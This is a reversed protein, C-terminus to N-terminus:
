TQWPHSTYGGFVKNSRMVVLTPGTGDCDEHFQRARFTSAQHILTLKFRARAQGLGERLLGVDGDGKLLRSNRPVVSELYSLFIRRVIHPHRKVLKERSSRSASWLLDFVSCSDAAFHFLELM